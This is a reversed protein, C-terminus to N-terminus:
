DGLDRSSLVDEAIDRLGRNTTHSAHELSVFAEQVSIGRREALIGTAAAVIRSGAVARELHHRQGRLDLRTLLLAFLDAVLRIYRRQEDGFHNPRRDIV